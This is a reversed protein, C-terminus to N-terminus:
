ASAMLTYMIRVSSVLILLTLQNYLVFSWLSLYCQQMSKGLGKYQATHVQTGNCVYTYSALGHQEYEM